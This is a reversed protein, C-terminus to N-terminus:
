KNKTKEVHRSLGWAPASGFIAGLAMDGMSGLEHLRQLQDPHLLGWAFVAVSGLPRALSVLATILKVSADVWPVTTTGALAELLKLQAERARTEFEMAKDKDVVLERGLGILDAFIPALIAISM